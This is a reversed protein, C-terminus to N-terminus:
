READPDKYPDGNCEWDAGSDRDCIYCAHANHKYHSVTIRCWRDPKTHEPELVTGARERRRAGGGPRLHSNPQGPCWENPFGSHYAHASHPQSNGCTPQEGHEDAPAHRHTAAHRQIGSETHFVALCYGCAWLSDPLNLAFYWRDAGPKPDAAGGAGPRQHVRSPSDPDLGRGPGRAPTDM